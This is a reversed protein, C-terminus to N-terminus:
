LILDRKSMNKFDKINGGLKRGKGSFKRPKRTKKSAPVVETTSGEQSLLRIADLSRSAFSTVLIDECEKTIENLTGFFVKDHKSHDNHVLEHLFTGMIDQFSFLDKSDKKNRFRIRVVQGKNVNVGLLNNSKPIFEAVHLVRWRRVVMIKKCLESCLELTQKVDSDRFLGLTTIKYVGYQWDTAM